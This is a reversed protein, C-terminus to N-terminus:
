KMVVSDSELYWEAWQLYAAANDRKDGYAYEYPLESSVIKLAGDIIATGIVLYSETGTKWNRGINVMFITANEIDAMVYPREDINNIDVGSKALAAMKEEYEQMNDDSLTIVKAKITM